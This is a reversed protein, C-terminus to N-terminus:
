AKKNEEIYDEIARKLQISVEFPSFGKIQAGAVSMHGGGGLKEVIVQVNVEGLSRASVFVENEMPYVVFAAKIGNIDLLNDAAQSAI